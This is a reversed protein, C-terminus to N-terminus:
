DESGEDDATSGEPPKPKKEKTAPEPIREWGSSAELWEDQSPRELIRGTKTNRYKVM